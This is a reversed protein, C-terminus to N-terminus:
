RSEKPFELEVKMRGVSNMKVRLRGGNAAVVQRALAGVKGYGSGAARGGSRSGSDNLVFLDLEVVINSTTESLSIVLPRTSDGVRRAENVCMRLATRLLEADGTLSAVDEEFDLLVSGSPLSSAVEALLESVDIHDAATGPTASELRALVCMDEALRRAEVAAAVIAASSEALARDERGVARALLAAHGSIVSLPGRLLAEALSACAPQPHAATGDPVEASVALVACPHGSSDHVPIIAMRMPLIAGSSHLIRMDLESVRDAAALRRISAITKLRDTEPIFPLTRGVVEHQQWGIVYECASNWRLVRGDLDILKVCDGTLRSLAGIVEEANGITFHHDEFDAAGM